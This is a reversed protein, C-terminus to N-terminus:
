NEDEEPIVLHDLESPEGRVQKLLEVNFERMRRKPNAKRWAFVTRRWKDTKAAEQILLATVKFEALSARLMQNILENTKLYMGKAISTLEKHLETSMRLTVAKTKKAVVFGRKEDQTQL